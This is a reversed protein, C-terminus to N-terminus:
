QEYAARVAPSLDLCARLVRLSWRILRESRRADFWRTSFKGGHFLNNRVRRVHILVAQTAVVGGAPVDEWVLRGARVVQKKPPRRMLEAVAARLLRNGGLARDFAPHIDRAFRDWDPEANGDDRVLYGGAKLAYEFRSFERFLRFALADLEPCDTFPGMREDFPPEAAAQDPTVLEGRDALERVQAEFRDIPRGATGAFRLLEEGDEFVTIIEDDQPHRRLTLRRREHEFEHHDPEDQAMGAVHRFL